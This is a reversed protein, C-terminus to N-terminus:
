KKLQHYVIVLLGLAVGGFPWWVVGSNASVMSVHGTPSSSGGSLFFVLAFLVGLAVFGIITKRIL